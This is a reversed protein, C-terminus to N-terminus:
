PSIILSPLNVSFCCTIAARVPEIEIATIEIMKANNACLKFTDNKTDNAKQIPAEAFKGTIM